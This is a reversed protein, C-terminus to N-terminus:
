QHLINGKLKPTNDSSIKHGFIMLALQESKKRNLFERNM